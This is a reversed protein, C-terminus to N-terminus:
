PTPTIRVRLTDLYTGEALPNTNAVPTIAIAINGAAPGATTATGLTENGAAGPTGATSGVPITVFGSAAVTYNIINDFLPATAPGTMAGNISTLSVNAARNCVVPYSKNIVTTAVTGATVSLDTVADTTDTLVSNIKCFSTVVARLPINQDTAMAPVSLGGTAIAAAIVCMTRKM